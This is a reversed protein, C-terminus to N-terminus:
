VSKASVLTSANTCCSNGSLFCLFFSVSSCGFWACAHACVCVCTAVRFASKLYLANVMSQPVSHWLALTRSDKTPMLAEVRNEEQVSANKRTRCSEKSRSKNVRPMPIHLSFASPFYLSIFSYLFLAASFLTFTVCLIFLFCM